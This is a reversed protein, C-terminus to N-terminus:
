KVLVRNDYATQLADIFYGHADNVRMTAGSVVDALSAKEAATLANFKALDAANTTTAKIPGYSSTGYKGFWAKVEAVTKGKFFNQYFDMQKYWENAPNMGYTEGRQRKTLWGNVEIGASTADIEPGDSVALTTHDTVKYSEMGPWGSFHPMSAGDYNPTSIEYGDMFVNLIKGNADFTASAMAVNFSYVALMDAGEEPWFGPGNRFSVDYGLGQYTKAAATPTTGPTPTAAATVYIKQNVFILNRNTVQPNLSLLKDLTMSFKAAIKGMTDGSVVVYTNTGAIVPAVTTVPAPKPAPAPAPAPTAPEVWPISAASVGDVNQSLTPAFIFGTIVLLFVLSHVLIKKM